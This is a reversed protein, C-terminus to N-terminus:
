GCINFQICLAPFSGHESIIYILYPYIPTYITPDDERHRRILSKDRQGFYFTLGARVAVDGNDGLNVSAFASQAAGGRRGFVWESGITVSDGALDHNYDLFVRADNTPYYSGEIVALFKNNADKLGNM